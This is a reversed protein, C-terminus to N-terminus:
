ARGGRLRVVNSSPQEAAAPDAHESEEPHVVDRLRAAWLTLAERKEDLYEYLDYVGKIGPRAHALVAERVEEAIKLRSLGSRVSRRIDHVVWPELTKARRDEGKARGIAQWTRLMKADLRAKAKSFGSVPKAGGTTSFLYDHDAKAKTKNSDPALKKLVALLDDTLPVIHANGGKMRAAPITWIRKTLNFERARGNSAERLRLGTLALVRYLTGFACGMRGSARWFARVEDDDLIRKRRNEKALKKVLGAPSADLLEEEVAWAFFGKTYALLRNAAIPSGGDHVERVVAKVDKRTISGLPRSGWAPLLGRRMTQEVEHGSRLKTLHQRAYLEIAAAFTSADARAKAAEVDRRAQEEADRRRREEVAPDKGAKILKTWERATERAEELTVAGYEGIARPSPLAGNIRKVLVFVKKGNGSPRIGFGSVLADWKIKRDGPPPRWKRIAADTLEKKAITM